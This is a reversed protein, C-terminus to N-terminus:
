ELCIYHDIELCLFWFFDRPTSCNPLEQTIISALLKPDNSWQLEKYAAEHILSSSHELYMVLAPFGGLCLNQRLYSKLSGNDLTCCAFCPLAAKDIHGMEYVLFSM